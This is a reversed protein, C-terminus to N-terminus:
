AAIWLRGRGAQRVHHLFYGRQIWCDRSSRRCRRWRGREISFSGWPVNRRWGATACPECVGPPSEDAVVSSISKKKVSVWELWERTCLKTSHVEKWAKRAPLRCLERWRQVYHIMCTSWHEHQMCSCRSLSRRDGNIKQLLFCRKMFKDAMKISKRVSVATTWAPVECSYYYLLHFQVM